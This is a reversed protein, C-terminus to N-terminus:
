GHDDAADDDNPARGLYVLRVDDRALVEDPSGSALRRGQHLVHVADAFPRVMSMDHEVLLVTIGLQDVLRSVLAGLEATEDADMGASPEDLLLLRPGAALARAIEVHRRLGYPLNGALERAWGALGVAVLARRAAEALTREAALAGPLPVAGQLFAFRVYRTTGLLVNDLVTATETLELNQFTRVIGHRVLERRSQGTIDKGDFHVAGASPAVAGSVVNFLTTKGAGNPGILATLTGRRIELSVGDNAVVGGFRVTIDDLRLLAAGGSRRERPPAVPRPAIAPGALAGDPRRLQPTPRRVLPRATGNPSRHLTRV